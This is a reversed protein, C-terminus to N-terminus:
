VWELGENIMYLIGFFLVLSLVIVFFLYKKEFIERGEDYM